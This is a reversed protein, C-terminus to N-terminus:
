RGRCWLVAAWPAVALLVLAGALPPEDLDASGLEGM